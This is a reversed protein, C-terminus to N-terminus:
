EHAPPHCACTWADSETGEDPLFPASPRTVESDKACAAHEGRQRCHAEFADYQRQWYGRQAEKASSIDVSLAFAVLPGVVLVGLLLDLSITLRFPGRFLWRLGRVSRAATSRIRWFRPKRIAEARPLATKGNKRDSM